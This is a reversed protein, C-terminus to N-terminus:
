ADAANYFYPDKKLFEYIQERTLDVNHFIYSTQHKSDTIDFDRQKKNTYSRVTVGTKHKNLDVIIYSIRHYENVEGNRIKRILLGM